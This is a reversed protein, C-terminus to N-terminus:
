RGRLIADLNQQANVFTTELYNYKKELDKIDNKLTKEENELRAKISTIPELVFMKGVGEFTRTGPPLTNLEEATLQLLRIDRQKAAMQAKVIQLQQSSFAAKSEIDAMLKQLAENPISM